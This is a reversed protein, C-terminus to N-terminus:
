EGPTNRLELLGLQFSESDLGGGIPSTKSLILKAAKVASEALGSSRPNYPSSLSLQVSFTTLFSSFEASCFQPGNDALLPVPIGFSVFWRCLCRIVQASSSSRSRRCWPEVMLIKESLFIKVTSWTQLRRLSQQSASDVSSTLPTKRVFCGAWTITSPTRPDSPLLIGGYKKRGPSFIPVSAGVQRRSRRPASPAVAASTDAEAEADAVEGPIPVRVEHFESLPQLFRRNQEYVAGNDMRLGYRPASLVAEVTGKREWTSSSPDQPRVRQGVALPSLPRGALRDLPPLPRDADVPRSPKVPPLHPVVGRQRRSFFLVSPSLGDAAPCNRWEQLAAPFEAPATKRLLRKMQKVAVEALGNLPAHHPSLKELTIDAASCYAAFERRFHPGGTNTGLTSLDPCEVSTVAEKGHSETAAVQELGAGRRASLVVEVTGKREGTSSSPDQLRVRQGVALPSLPHGALLGPPPLPRDADVPRPTKVPPLHPVVGRQRRGYFLVSPSLGDARPCNRWEQLAVPFEAPTTKRLLRKMQKVAAEALGNSPAHYKDLTIDAASCFAAFERRFQPGGDVRISRPRGVECANIYAMVDARMGPWFYLDCANAMTKALGCHATHLLHLAAPRAQPPLVVRQGDLVLM